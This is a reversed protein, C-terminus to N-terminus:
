IAINLITHHAYGMFDFISTRLLSSIIAINSIFHTVCGTIEFLHSSTNSTRHCLGMIEFKRPLLPGYEIIMWLIVMYIQICIYIRIYM